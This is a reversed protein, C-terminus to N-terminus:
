VYSGCLDRYSYLTDSGSVLTNKQRLKDRMEPVYAHGIPTNPVPPTGVVWPFGNFLELMYEKNKGNFHIISPMSGSFKNFIRGRRTLLEDPPLRRTDEFPIEPNDDIRYIDDRAFAMTLSIESRYDIKIGYDLDTEQSKAFLAQFVSQDGTPYTGAVSFFTKSFDVADKYLGLFSQRDGVIVGSNLWRPRNLEFPGRDTDPGYTQSPMTSNPLKACTAEENPWCKKDAAFVLPSDFKRYKALLADASEQVITDWADLLIIIDKKGRAVREIHESVAEIKQFTNRFHHGSDPMVLLSPSYGHHIASALARCYNTDTTNTVPLLLRMDAGKTQGDIKGALTGLHLDDQPILKVLSLFGCLLVVLLLLSRNPITSLLM